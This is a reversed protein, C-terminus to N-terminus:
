KVMSAYRERKLSIHSQVFVPVALKDLFSFFSVISVISVFDNHSVASGRDYIM